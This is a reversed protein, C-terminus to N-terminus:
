MEFGNIHHHIQLHKEVEHKWPPCPPGEQGLALLSCGGGCLPLISCARCDARINVFSDRPNDRVVPLRKAKGALASLTPPAAAAAAPAPVPAAAASAPATAAPARATVTMSEGELVPLQDAQLESRKECVYIGGDTDILASKASNFKCHRHRIVQSLRLQFGLDIARRQLQHVENYTVDVALRRSRGDYVINFDIAVAAPSSGVERLRGALLELLEPIRELNSRDVNVRVYV